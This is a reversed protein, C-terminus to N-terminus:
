FLHAESNQNPLLQTEISSNPYMYIPAGDSTSKQQNNSFASQCTNFLTHKNIAKTTYYANGIARAYSNKASSENVFNLQKQEFDAFLM